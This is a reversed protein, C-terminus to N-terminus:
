CNSFAESNYSVKTIAKLIQTGKFTWEQWPSLHSTPLRLRTTNVLAEEYQNGVRQNWMGLCERRVTKREETSRGTPLYYIASQSLLLIRSFWTINLNLNSKNGKLWDNPMRTKSPSLAQILTGSIKFTLVYKGLVLTPNKGKLWNIM